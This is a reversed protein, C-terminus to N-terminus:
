EWRTTRTLNPEVAPRVFFTLVDITKRHQISWSLWSAVLLSSVIASVLIGVFVQTTLIGVEVAIDAAVIGTVGSPTFAIGISLRDERM